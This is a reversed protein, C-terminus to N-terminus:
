KIRRAKKVGNIKLMNRCLQDVADTNSVMVGLDCTFVENHAEINLRRIDINLATSILRTLEQLIGHRDIGEIVISAPFSGSVEDWRTAVIRPGYSAKLVQARPCTLEHVEVEGKDNIFGMVEDGPIPRCCDAFVFNSEKDSFKLIYTNKTNIAQKQQAAKTETEAEQEKKKGTGLGLRFIKSLLTKATNSTNANLYDDISIEGQGLKLFLEERSSVHYTGFIKTLVNNNLTIDNEALFEDFIKRGKEMAPQQVKRLEKRLRTRAKATALFNTWEAKPSQSQSTLVEVQDGSNLRHSLPVLKHNVKGAICHAGIESHLAFAVDLVTAGTPLTILEGKPTFVVIESSFLNLKLTDLFDIASPTPDDLIDKITRLWVNLESEEDSEGIKYKWHAAFGKEAIEDMRRSRIQVEIWNGDPGMLTVHLAQYGNAKPTSIWDRTRDPHPRYLDTLAVYIKYCMEKELAPDD